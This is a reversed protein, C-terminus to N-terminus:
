CVQVQGINLRCLGLLMHGMVFCNFQQIHNDLQRHLIKIRNYGGGGRGLTMARTNYSIIIISLVPTTM